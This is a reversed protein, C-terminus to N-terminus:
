IVYMMMVSEIIIYTMFTLPTLETLPPSRFRHAALTTDFLRHNLIM